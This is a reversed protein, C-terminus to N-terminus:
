MCSLTYAHMHIDTHMCAHEHSDMWLWVKFMKYALSLVSQFVSDQVDDERYETYLQGDKMREKFPLGVTQSCHCVIM